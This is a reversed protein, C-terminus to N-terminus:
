GTTLVVEANPLVAGTPDIAVGIVPQTAPARQAHAAPPQAVSVALMAVVTTVRLM